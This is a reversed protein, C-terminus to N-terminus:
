NPLLGYTRLVDRGTDKEKTAQDAGAEPLFTHRPLEPSVRLARTRKRAARPLVAAAHPVRPLPTPHTQPRQAGQQASAACPEATPPSSRSPPPPEADEPRDRAIPPPAARARSRSQSLTRTKAPKERCTRPPLEANQPRHRPTPPQRPSAGQPPAPRTTPTPARQPAPASAAALPWPPVDTGTRPPRAPSTVRGRPPRPPSCTPRPGASAPPSRRPKGSSAGPPKRLRPAPAAHGLARTQTRVQLGRGPKPSSCRAPGGLESRKPAATGACCGGRGGECAPNPPPLIWAGAGLLGETTHVPPLPAAPQEFTGAARVTKGM